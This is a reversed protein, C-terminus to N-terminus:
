LSKWRGCNSGYTNWLPAEIPVAAEAIVAILAQVAGDPEPESPGSPCSNASCWSAVSGDIPKRGSEVRTTTQNPSAGPWAGAQVAHVPRPEFRVVEDTIESSVAACMRTIAM